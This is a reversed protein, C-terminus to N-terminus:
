QESQNQTSYQQHIGLSCKRKTQKNTQKIYHYIDPISESRRCIAIYM